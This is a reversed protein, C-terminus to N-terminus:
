DDFAEKLAEMSVAGLGLAQYGLMVERIRSIMKDRKDLEAVWYDRTANKPYDNMANM